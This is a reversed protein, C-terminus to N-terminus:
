FSRYTCVLSFSKTGKFRMYNWTVFVVFLQNFSSSFFICLVVLNLFVKAVAVQKSKTSRSKHSLARSLHPIGDNIDDSCLGYPATNVEPFSFPDQLQKDLGDGVPSPTSNINVKIPLARSRTYSHGNTHSYFGGHSDNLTANNVPSRSTRSCIGGMKSIVM